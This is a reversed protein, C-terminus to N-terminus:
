TGDGSGNGDDDDDDDDPGFVRTELRHIRSELRRYHGGTNEIVQDLRRNLAEGMGDVRLTLADIRGGLGDIRGGLADFQPKLAQAIAAALADHEPKNGNGAM